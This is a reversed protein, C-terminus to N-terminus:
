NGEVKEVKCLLAKFGPFGSIPDLYDGDFLTNVEVGPYAHYLHIVGPQAMLTVNAKVCVSGKPTSIRINDGQFIRLSQADEPNMDAVPEPSLSNTWPVRFTRSHIFMPLRSGTNFIFPYEKAMDPTNEASYKPPHYEPLADYGYEEAYKELVLSRFEM